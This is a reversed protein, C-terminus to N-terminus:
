LVNCNCKEIVGHRGGVLKFLLLFLALHAQLLHPHINNPCKKEQRDKKKEKERKPLRDSVSPFVTEFSCIVLWIWDHTTHSCWNVAAVM